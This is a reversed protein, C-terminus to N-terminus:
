VIDTKEEDEWRSDERIDIHVKWGCKCWRDFTFDGVVLGGARNGVRSCGCRPCHLFKKTLKFCKEIEM